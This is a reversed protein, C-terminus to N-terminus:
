WHLFSSRTNAELTQAKKELTETTRPSLSSRPGSNGSSRWILFAGTRQRRQQNPTTTPSSNSRQAGFLAKDANLAISQLAEKAYQLIVYNSKWRGLFAVQSVWWGNRIYQLAGSRRSSHGTILRGYLERAKTATSGDQMVSLCAGENGQLCAHHVLAELVAYPCSIDCAGAFLCQLTRSITTGEQDNKSENWACAFLLPALKVRATKSNADPLLPHAKWTEEPVEPAKKAPGMGRKVAKTCLKFHWDRLSSWEWGREIHYIKAEAIYTHRSAAQLESHM